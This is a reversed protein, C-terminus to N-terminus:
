GLWPVTQDTPPGMGLTPATLSPWPLNMWLPVFARRKGVNYAPRADLDSSSSSVCSLRSAHASSMSWALLIM